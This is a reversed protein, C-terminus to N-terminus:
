VRTGGVLVYKKTIQSRDIFVLPKKKMTPNRISAPCHYLSKM